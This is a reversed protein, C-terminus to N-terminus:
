TEGQQTCARLAEIAERRRLWGLRDYVDVLMEAVAASRVFRKERM